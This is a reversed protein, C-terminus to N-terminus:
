AHAGGKNISNHKNNVKIKKIKINRSVTIQIKYWGWVSSFMLSASIAIAITPLLDKIPFKNPFEIGFIINKIHFKELYWGVIVMMTIFLMLLLYSLSTVKTMSPNKIFAVLAILAISISTIISPFESSLKHSFNVFIFENVLVLLISISLIVRFINNSALESKKILSYYILLIVAIFPIIMYLWEDLVNPAKIFSYSYWIMLSVSVILAMSLSINKSIDKMNKLRKHYVFWMVTRVLLSAIFLLACSLFYLFEIDDHLNIAKTEEGTVYQELIFGVLAFSSLLLANSIFSLFIYKSLYVSSRREIVAILFHWFIAYLFISGIYYIAITYDLIEIPQHYPLYVLFFLIYGVGILSMLFNIIKFRIWIQNTRLITWATFLILIISIANWGVKKAQTLNSIIDSQISLYVISVIAIIIVIFRIFFRLGINFRFLINLKNNQIITEKNKM